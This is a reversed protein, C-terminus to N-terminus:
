LDRSLVTLVELTFNDLEEEYDNIRSTFLHYAIMPPIICIISILMTILSTSVGPAITALNAEKMLSITRFTQMLGWVTGLLGLFMSTTYSVLLFTIGKRLKKMSRRGVVIMADYIREKFSEKKSASNSKIIEQVNNNTWEQMAAIFVTGNPSKQINKAREYINEISDGSWFLKEFKNSKIDLLRFKFFKEIIVTWSCLSFIFLSVLVIKTLLDLQLLIIFFKLTGVQLSM